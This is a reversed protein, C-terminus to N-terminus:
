INATSQENITGTKNNETTKSNNIDSETNNETNSINYQYIEYNKPLRTPIRKVHRGFM